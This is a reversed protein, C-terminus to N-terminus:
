LLKSVVLFCRHLSAPLYASVVTGRERGGGGPLFSVLGVAPKPTRLQAIRQEPAGSHRSPEPCYGQDRGM